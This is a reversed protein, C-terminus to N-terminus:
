HLFPKGSWDDVATALVRCSGFQPLFRHIAAFKLSNAIIQPSQRYDYFQGTDDHIM